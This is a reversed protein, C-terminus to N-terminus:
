RLPPYLVLKGFDVANVVTDTNLDRISNQYYDKLLLKPNVVRLTQSFTEGFNTFGEQIM